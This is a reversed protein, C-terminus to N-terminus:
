RLRIRLLRCEIEEEDEEEKVSCCGSVEEPKNKPLQLQSQSIWEEVICIICSAHIWDALWDIWNRNIQKCQQQNPLYKIYHLETALQQWTIIDLKFIFRVGNKNLCVVLLFNLASKKIWEVASAQDKEQKNCHFVCHLGVISM